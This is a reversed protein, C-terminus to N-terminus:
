PRTRRQRLLWEWVARDDYTRSWADHQGSRYLTCAKASRGAPATRGTSWSWGQDPDLHATQVEENPFGAMLGPGRFGDVAAALNNMWGVTWDPRVTPDDMCHFSWVAIDRFPRGDGPGAAGCIPIIAAVQDPHFRAYQWVGAGGMSLGALYLRDPDIRYHRMLYAVFSGLTDEKGPDADWWRPSQPAFVLVRQQNFWTDGNRILKGPGHKTALSLLTDTGDGKGGTGHLHIIAPFREDSAAAYGTPLFEVYGFPADRYPDAPDDSRREVLTGEQAALPGGILAFVATLPLLYPLRKLRIMAIRTKSPPTM